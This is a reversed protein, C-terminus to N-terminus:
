VEDLITPIPTRLLKPHLHEQLWVVTKHHIIVVEAVECFHFVFFLFWSFMSTEFSGENKTRFPNLIIKIYHINKVVRSGLINGYSKKWAGM